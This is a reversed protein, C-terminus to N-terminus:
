ASPTRVGVVSRQQTAPPLHQLAGEDNVPPLSAVRFNAGIRLRRKREPVRTTDM